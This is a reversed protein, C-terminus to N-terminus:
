RAVKAAALIKEIEAPVFRTSVVSNQQPGERYKIYTTAVVTSDPLVEVGPYGCDGGKFSHLLKVRYDGPRGALIDQYHGVWALFHNRTPSGVGTDRFCIVLRGDPLYQAKHRDGHLGTPLPKPQSWTRGEDESTMYLSVRKVNERILCLIQKGDPSRVLEPECPKLGKVDLYINWPSWTLGGDISFSQALVNSREEQTEGPRRINTVGLLRKGGDVPIVSCFPMAVGDLGTSKMESWTRGLDTSFSVHMESALGAGQGAYVVLREAGQPDKLRYITPCNRTTPWSKPVSLYDSWTLGGDDSRKLPGLPGGHGITWVCYLTHGDPLLLTTPHGQYVDPTGQGIVVQRATDGSLDITPLPFKETGAIVPPTAAASFSACALSLTLLAPINM